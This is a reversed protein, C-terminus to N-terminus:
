FLTRYCLAAVASLKQIRNGPRNHPPTNGTIATLGRSPYVIPLGSAHDWSIDSEFEGLEEMTM